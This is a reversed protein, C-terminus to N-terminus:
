SMCIDKLCHRSPHQRHCTSERLARAMQLLSACNSARSSRTTRSTFRTIVFDDWLMDVFKRTKALRSTWGCAGMKRKHKLIGLHGDGMHEGGCAFCKWTHVNETPTSAAPMRASASHPLSSSRFAQMSLIMNSATRVFIAVCYVLDVRSKRNRCSRLFCVVHNARTPISMSTDKGSSIRDRGTEMRNHIPVPSRSECVVLLSYIM